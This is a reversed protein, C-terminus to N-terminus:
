TRLLTAAILTKADQVDGGLLEEPRRTVVELEEDDDHPRRDAVLELDRALFLTMFESCFGPAPYFTSLVEWSAARYGTEEELERRAATLPDEGPELRGAPVELMWAGCAHRYQRVLLLEGNDNLAAIAAAGHHDVMQLKQELGSPLRITEEVIDFIRGDLLTEAALVEIRPDRQFTM